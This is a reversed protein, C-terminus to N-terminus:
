KENKEIEDKYKMLTNRIVERIVESKNAFMGKEILHEIKNEMDKSIRIHIIDEKAM